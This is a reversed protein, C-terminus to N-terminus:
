IMEQNYIFDIKIKGFVFVSVLYFKIIIKQKNMTHLISCLISRHKWEYEIFILEM